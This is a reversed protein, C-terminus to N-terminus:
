WQLKNDRNLRIHFLILLIIDIIFCWFIHLLSGVLAITLMIVYLTYRIIDSILQRKEEKKIDKKDVNGGM